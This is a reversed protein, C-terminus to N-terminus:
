TMARFGEERTELVPESCHCQEIVWMDHFHRLIRSCGHSERHIVDITGIKTMELTDLFRLFHDRQQYSDGIGEPMCVSATNDMAVDLGLVDHHRQFTDPPLWM